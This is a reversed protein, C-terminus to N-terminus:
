ATHLLCSRHRVEKKIISAVIKKEEKLRKCIIMAMQLPDEQFHDQFSNRLKVNLLKFYVKQHEELIRELVM